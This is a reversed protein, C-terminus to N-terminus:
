PTDTGTLLSRRLYEHVADFIPTTLDLVTQDDHAVPAPAIKAHEAAGAGARRGFVILDSLSNGGLRNAGNVGSTM